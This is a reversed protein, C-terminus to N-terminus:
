VDTKAVAQRVREPEVAITVGARKLQLQLYARSDKDGMGQAVAETMEAHTLGALRAPVGLDRALDTTLTVDKLALKLALAPTDYTGPLFQNTLMHLPSRKGVLGLRLAEWLDLPDIGAKVAISFVEAEALMITYGLTNHALKTVTGAGIPGVHCTLKGVTKLLAEHRDYTPKDGGVWLVLDGSAAGAPGGSVPSDLFQMGKEAFAAHLRRVTSMANTSLDFVVTGTRMAPLAGDAGVLVDEVQQPGPLSTFVLDCRGALEAVSKAVEAGDAALATMASRDLDFVILTVGSRLLSRAMGRGMRGLGIFGVTM